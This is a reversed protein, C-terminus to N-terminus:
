PRVFTSEPRLRKATRYADLAREVDGRKAEVRALLLWPRWNTPERDVARRLDVAAATLEDSAEEVLARQVYPSSAWPQADVADNADGIAAETDGSRFAAQSDRVKSTSVLGPLQVVIAVLAVVAVAGRLPWRLRPARRSVAMTAVAASIFALATVATSEWMWDVGAHFLYVLFAATLAVAAGAEEDTSLRLRSNLALAGLGFLAVVVLTFGPIGLEALQEVYLSHADRVFEEGRDRNWWFEFTGAGIGKLPEDEFARLASRWIPYRGGQLTTLRSAPDDSPAVESGSVLDGNRFQDWGRAINDRGATVALLAIFALVTAVALRTWPRPLRWSDADIRRTAVVAALSIAAGGLLVLAVTAGGAGGTAQAIEDHSRVELIALAAGGAGALAHIAAVWRNKSLITVVLVALASGAVGARSYTLYVALGCVPLAAACVARVPLTRAHASWALAMAIAMASWAGVANWYDFPYNLRNTGLERGVDNAPFISPALRSVVAIGSIFVAAVAVGAAAARWTTRDLVSWVLVLLGGFHAVRAVEALTREDSDSWSLSLATWVALLALAALPVVAARPPRARPLLGFAFGLGVLLWVVIAEEQRVVIDYSGGRLAYYSPVAAAVAFAAVQVSIAKVPLNRAGHSVRVAM